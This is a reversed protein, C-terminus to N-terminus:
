PQVGEVPPVPGAVAMPKRRRWRLKRVRDSLTTGKHLRSKVLQRVPAMHDYPDTQGSV